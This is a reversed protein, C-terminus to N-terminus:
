LLIHTFFMAQSKILLDTTNSIFFGSPLPMYKCLFNQFLELFDIFWM